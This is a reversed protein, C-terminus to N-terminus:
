VFGGLRLGIGGVLRDGTLVGLLAAFGGFTAVTATATPPPTTALVFCRRSPRFVRPSLRRRRLPGFGFRFRPGPRRRPRTGPGRRPGRRPLPRVFVGIAPARPSAAPSAAAAIALIRRVGNRAGFLRIQDRGIGPGSRGIREATLSEIDEIDHLLRFEVGRLRLPRAVIAARPMATRAPVRRM